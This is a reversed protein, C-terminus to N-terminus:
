RVQFDFRKKCEEVDKISDNNGKIKRLGAQHKVAAITDRRLVAQAQHVLDSNTSEATPFRNIRQISAALATLSLIGQMIDQIIRNRIPYGSSQAFTNNRKGSKWSLQKLSYRLHNTSSRYSEYHTLLLGIWQSTDKNIQATKRQM